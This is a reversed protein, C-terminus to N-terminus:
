NQTKGYYEGIVKIIKKANDKSADLLNCYPVDGLARFYWHMRSKVPHNMILLNEPNQDYLKIASFGSDNGLMVKCQTILYGIGELSLFDIGRLDIYEGEVPVAQTGITYVQILNKNCYEVIKNYFISDPSSGDHGEKKRVYILLHKDEKLLSDVFDKEIKSPNFIIRVRDDDIRKYKNKQFDWEMICETFVADIFITNEDIFKRVFKKLSSPRWFMFENKSLDASEQSLEDTVDDVTMSFNQNVWPSVMVVNPTIKHLMDLSYREMGRPYNYRFYYVSDTIITTDFKSINYKKIVTILASIAPWIDGLGGRIYAVLKKM